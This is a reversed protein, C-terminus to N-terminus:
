GYASGRVADVTLERYCLGAERQVIGLISSGKAKGLSEKGGKEPVTYM